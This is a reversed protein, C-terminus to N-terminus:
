ESEIAAATQAPHTDFQGQEAAAPIVKLATRLRQMDTAMDLECGHDLHTVQM